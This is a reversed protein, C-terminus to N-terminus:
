YLSLCGTVNRGFDFGTRELNGGLLKLAVVLLVSYGIYEKHLPLMEAKQYLM